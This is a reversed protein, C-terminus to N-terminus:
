PRCPVAAATKRVAAPRLLEISQRNKLKTLEAKVVDGIVTGDVFVAMGEIRGIGQGDTSIDEITMEYIQGKEIM